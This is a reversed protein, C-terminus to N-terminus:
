LNDILQSIEDRLLKFYEILNHMWSNAEINKENAWKIGLSRAIIMIKETKPYMM